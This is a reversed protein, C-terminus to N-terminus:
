LAVRVGEGSKVYTFREKFKLIPQELYRFSLMAILITPALTLLHAFPIFIYRGSTWVRALVAAEVGITFGHVVYLGYSIRGLYVMWGPARLPAGVFALFFAVCGALVMAYGIVVGPLSAGTHRFLHFWTESLVM